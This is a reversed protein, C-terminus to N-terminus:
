TLSGTRIIIEGTNKGGMLVDFRAMAKRSSVVMSLTANVGSGLAICGVVDAATNGVHLLIHTRGPVGKVEWVDGFKPSNVREIQYYGDPICSKFPENDLWPREVTYFHTGEVTLRGMTRDNYRGYRILEIM